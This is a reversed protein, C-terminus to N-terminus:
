RSKRFRQFSASGSTGMRFSAFASYALSGYRTFNRVILLRQLKIRRIIIGPLHRFVQRILMSPSPQALRAACFTRTQARM